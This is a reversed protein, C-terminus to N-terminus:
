SQPNNGVLGYCGYPQGAQQPTPASSETWRALAGPSYVDTREPVAGRVIASVILAVGPRPDPLGEIQGVGQEVVDIGDLQPMPRTVFNVRPVVGSPAIERVVDGDGNVLNVIHPTMNVIQM